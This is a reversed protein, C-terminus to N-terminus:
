EYLQNLFQQYIIKKHTMHLLSDDKFDVFYKSSLNDHYSIRNKKRRNLVSSYYTTNSLCFLLPQNEPYSISLSSVVSIQDGAEVCSSGVVGTESLLYITDGPSLKMLSHVIEDVVIRYRTKFYNCEELSNNEQNIIRGIIVVESIALRQLELNSAGEWHLSELFSDDFYNHAKTRLCQKLSLDISRYSENLTSDNCIRNYEDVLNITDLDSTIFLEGQCFIQFPLLITALRLIPSIAM